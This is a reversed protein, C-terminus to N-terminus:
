LFSRTDATVPAGYAYESLLANVERILKPLSGQETTSFAQLVFDASDMAPPYKPGIGVRVRGYEPSGLHTTLSKVGNHGASSGGVRTRIHGFDIDLEDHVVVLQSLQLKYFHLLAQVAEGSRNMYTTPKCLIVRTDGVMQVAVHCKMDTKHVWSTIDNKKAFEDLCLFGVNHRTLAYEPGPNGLGVLVLTKNLGYTTFNVRSGYEPRKQFLAM